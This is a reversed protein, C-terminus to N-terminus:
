IRIGIICVDDVQDLEGKWDKFAKKFLIKQEDMPLYSNKLLLEELQKNMFKKGKPGGFQDAFGDSFIYISDGKELQMTHNTFPKSEPYYGIPQKDAKIKQLQGNKILCLPNNAGSWQIENTEMHWRILSIDMGDKSKEEQGTQGLEKVVKNRLEDLIQAPTYLIDSSTIDNLFSIGLMSMFAGPVGHGTCDVAAVYWYKREQGEKAHSPFNRGFAWFFDGSVIDKPMFLVFHDPLHKSFYEEKRLLANQIRKAYHISDLIDKNKGEVEKKQETIHVNAQEVKEKEERIQNTARIIKQKLKKKQTILKRNNWRVIFMVSGISMMGYVTYMWWTRWWPPLLKFEYEIPDSWVGFPSKAKLKFTYTGEYINGFTASTKDTVPSWNKDYGELKYQYRILSNRSPDTAVFDFTISNHDYPLLLNKPIPYWKALSDFQIGSFEKQMEEHESDSLVKGFTTVEENLILLSDKKTKKINGQPKLSNWGIQKENIKVSKIFPASPNPNKHVAAPDFRVLGTKDSSTAIWIIGKSDQFLVGPGENIDKIPYGTNKNYIDYVPKYNKLEKNSINLLGAPKVKVVGGKRSNGSQTPPQFYLGCLGSNTALWIVGKKDQLVQTVVNDPLGDRSTYNLFFKGDYRSLGGESAIWLNGNKDEAITHVSNSILGQATTYNTFKGGNGSHSPTFCSIGGEELILWLNGNKDETISQVSNNALGHATTYNTFSEGDYCSLGKPTAFWVNGKKDGRICSVTVSPFGQALSYTTFAKGDYSSLFGKFSGFWMRGAKDEAISIITNSTLGQNCTFNTISKGDYRSVGEGYTAFWLNGGKDETVSVVQNNALGQAKTFCTFSKGEYCSVGGGYTGFWLNGTKDETIAFVANNALGNETTFNTFSAGDYRSVGGGDTGFWLNGSKDETICRIMNHALGQATTFNTFTKGDYRSVGSGDSGFWLNGNKDELISLIYNNALGQGSILSAFAKGDYRSVGGGGTGFWINGKRDEIISLVQDNALGQAVTYRTFSKGNYFFVGSGNTGFWLNGKSDEEICLVIDNTLGNAKNFNTFSKGDYRSVSGNNCGFWINGAKDEKISWVINDALGQATSFTNFSKGDFRSVGGGGSCFWLNGAKDMISGLIADLALGNDTTYTTFFGAGQAEPYNKMEKQFPLVPSLPLAHVKPPELKITRPGILSPITYSSGTSTPVPIIKPKPRQNLLVPKTTQNEASQSQASSCFFSFVYLLSFTWKCFCSVAIIKHQIEIKYKSM